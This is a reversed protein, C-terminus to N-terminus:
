VTVVRKLGKVSSRGCLIGCVAGNIMSWPMNGSGENLMALCGLVVVGVLFGVVPGWKRAVLLASLMFGYFVAALVGYLIAGSFSEYGAIPIVVFKMPMKHLVVFEILALALSFIAGQMAGRLLRVKDPIEPTSDAMRRKRGTSDIFYRAGDKGAPREIPRLVNEDSGVYLPTDQAEEGHAPTGQAGLPRLIEDNSSEQGSVYNPAEASADEEAALNAGLTLLGSAHVEPPPPPPKSEPRRVMAEDATERSEPPAVQQQEEPAKAAEEKAKILEEKAKASIAGGPPLMPKKCWECTTTTSSEMGCRRCIM